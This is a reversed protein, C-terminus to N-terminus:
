CCPLNSLLKLCFHRWFKPLVELVVSYEVSGVLAFWCCQLFKNCSTKGFIHIIIAKAAAWRFTARRLVFLHKFLCLCQLVIAETCAVLFKRKQVYLPCIYEIHDLFQLKVARPLCLCVHLINRNHYDSCLLFSPTQQVGCM